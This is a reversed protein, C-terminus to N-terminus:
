FYRSCKGVINPINEILRSYLVIYFLSLVDLVYKVYRCCKCAVEFINLIDLVNLVNKSRFKCM